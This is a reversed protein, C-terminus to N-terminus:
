RRALFVRTRALRVGAGTSRAEPRGSPSPGGQPRGPAVPGFGSGSSRVALPAAVASAFSLRITHCDRSPRRPRAVQWEPRATLRGNTWDRVAYRLHSGLSRRLNGVIRLRGPNAESWATEGIARPKSCDRPERT